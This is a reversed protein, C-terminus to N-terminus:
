AIHSTQSPNKVYRSDKVSSLKLNGLATSPMGQKPLNTPELIANSTQLSLNSCCGHLSAITTVEKLLSIVLMMNSAVEVGALIHM